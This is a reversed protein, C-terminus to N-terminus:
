SVLTETLTGSLRHFLTGSTPLPSPLAALAGANALDRSFGSGNIVVLVCDENGTAFCGDVQGICQELTLTDGSVPPAPTFTSTNM